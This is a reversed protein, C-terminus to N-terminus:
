LRWSARACPLANHVVLLGAHACAAGAASCHVREGVGGARRAHRPCRRGGGSGRSASGRPTPAHDPRPHPHPRPRPRPLAPGRVQLMSTAQAAGYGLFQKAYLSMNTQIGDAPTRCPPQPIPHPDSSPAPCPDLPAGGQQPIRCPGGRSIKDRERGAHWYYPPTAPGSPAPGSAAGGRWATANGHHVAARRGSNALASRYASPQLKWALAALNKGPSNARGCAWPHPAAAGACRIGRGRSHQASVTPSASRQKTASSARAPARSAGGGSRTLPRSTAASRRLTRM